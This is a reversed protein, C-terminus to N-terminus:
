IKLLWKEADKSNNFFKTPVVPKQNKLYFNAVIKQSLTHIVFADAVKYKSGSKSCSLKIAKLDPVTFEGVNILNKYKKGGGLKYAANILDKMDNANLVEDQKIDIELIEETKLKVTAIRTNIIEILDKM